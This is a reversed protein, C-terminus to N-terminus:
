INWGNSELASLAIPCISKAKVAELMLKAVQQIEPQAHNSNRLKQYNAFSRLNFITVRETMNNQPLVGRFFERLRKFEINSINKDQEFQKLEKILNNYWTNAAECLNEYDAMCNNPNVRHMIDFVDSPISLWESPM